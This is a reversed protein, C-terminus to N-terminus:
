LDLYGKVREILQANYKVQYNYIEMATKKPDYSDEADRHYTKDTLYNKVVYEHSYDHNKHLDRWHNVSFVVMNMEAIKRKVKALGLGNPTIEEKM